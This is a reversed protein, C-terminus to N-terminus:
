LHYWSLIGFDAKGVWFVLIQKQIIVSQIIVMVVYEAFDCGVDM